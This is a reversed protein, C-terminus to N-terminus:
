AKLNCTGGTLDMAKLIAQPTFLNERLYKRKIKIIDGQAIGEHFKWWADGVNLGIIRSDYRKYKDKNIMADMATCLAEPLSLNDDSTSLNSLWGELRSLRQQLQQREVCLQEVSIRSSDLEARLWVNEDKHYNIWVSSIGSISREKNSPKNINNQSLSPCWIKTTINNNIFSKHNACCTFIKM